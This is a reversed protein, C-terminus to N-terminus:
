PQKANSKPPIVVQIDRALLEDVFEQASYARDAILAEFDLDLVQNHAQTIDHRQGATLALRLPNGLGDVTVHIKTSFGGRSRGLAQQAQGGNKQPGRRVPMLGSLPAIWWGTKWIRSMRSISLCGSGCVTIAGAGLGSTSVIGSGM